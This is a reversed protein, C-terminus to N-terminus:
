FLSTDQLFDAENLEALRNDLFWVTERSLKTSSDIKIQSNAKKFEVFSEDSESQDVVDVLKLDIYKQLSMRGNLSCMETLHNVPYRSNKFSYACNMIKLM